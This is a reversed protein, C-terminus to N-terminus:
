VSELEAENPALATRVLTLQPATADGARGSFRWTFRVSLGAGRATMRVRADVGPLQAVTRAEDRLIVAESGSEVLIRREDEVDRLVDHTDPVDVADSALSL